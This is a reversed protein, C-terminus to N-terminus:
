RGPEDAGFTTSPTGSYCSLVYPYQDTIYYGYQGDVVMGNCEDLDGAGERYVFDGIFQGNYEESSVNGVVTPTEFGDVDQRVGVKLEFSSQAARIEDDADTFCPGYIPFGDRAFGIVPSEAIGTCELTHLAEPTSHYHYLGGPQVHASYDDLQFVNLASGVNYRWPNDLQDGGCGIAERGLNPPGEGYCAAPYAEWIVGNLMVAHVTFGLATPEDNVHPVTPIVWTSAVEGVEDAFTAGIGIDHNPIQNSVLTCTNTDASITLEGQFENGTQVDTVMSTYAGVYSVCNADTSMLEVNTIDVPSGPTSTAEAGSGAGTIEEQSPSRGSWRQGPGHRGGGDTPQRRCRVRHSAGSDARRQRLGRAFLLLAPLFVIISFSRM